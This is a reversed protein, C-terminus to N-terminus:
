LDSEEQSSVSEGGASALPYVKKKGIQVSLREGKYKELHKEVVIVSVAMCGIVVGQNKVCLFSGTSFLFFTIVSRFLHPKIIIVLSFLLYFFILLFLPNAEPLLGIMVGFSVAIAKGGKIGHWIPFAHGLVPAAMVLAFAMNHPDVNGAALYVPLFGKALECFVVVIRIGTGAYKFANATGPNGDDSLERIDVHVFLKPLLYAYMISGSIYGLVSWMVYDM